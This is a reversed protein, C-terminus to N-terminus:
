PERSDIDPRQKLLKFDLAYLVIVLSLTMRKGSNEPFLRFIQVVYKTVLVLTLFKFFCHNEDAGSM